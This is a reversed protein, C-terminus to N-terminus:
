VGDLAEAMHGVQDECAWLNWIAQVKPSKRYRREAKGRRFNMNDIARDLNEDTMISAKTILLRM